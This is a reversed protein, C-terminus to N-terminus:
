LIGGVGMTGGGAGTLWILALLTDLAGLVVAILAPISRTGTWRRGMALWGCVVAVPGLVIGLTFFGAVACILGVIGLTERDATVRGAFSGRRTRPRTSHRYGTM